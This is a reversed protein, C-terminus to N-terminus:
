DKKAAEVGESGGYSASYVANLAEAIQGPPYTELLQQPKVSKSMPKGKEDLISDLIVGATYLNIDDTVGKSRLEAMKADIESLRATSMRQVPFKGELMKVQIPERKPPALLKSKLTM